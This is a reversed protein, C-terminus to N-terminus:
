SCAAVPVSLLLKSNFTQKFSEAATEFSHTRLTRWEIDGGCEDALNSSYAFHSRGDWEHFLLEDGLVSVLILRDFNTQLVRKWRIRWVGSKTTVYTLQASKVEVRLGGAFFDYASSSRSRRAGKWDFQEFPSEPPAGGPYLMTSYLEQVLAQLVLGRKPPTLLDLLTFRIRPQQPQVVKQVSAIPMRFLLQWRVKDLIDELAAQWTDCALSADVRITCGNTAGREGGGHLRTTLDWEWILVESPTSGVLFLQDFFMRKVPFWAFSWCTGTSRRTSRLRATKVKVRRDGSLFGCSLNDSPVHRGDVRAEDVHGPQPSGPSLHKAYLRQCLDEAIQGRTTSPLTHFECGAYLADHSRQHLRVLEKLRQNCFQAGSECLRTSALTCPVRM